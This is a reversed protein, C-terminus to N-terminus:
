LYSKLFWFTNYWVHLPAKVRFACIVIKKPKNTKYAQEAKLFNAYTTTVKIANKPAQTQDVSVIGDGSITIHYLYKCRGRKITLLVDNYNNKNVYDLVKESVETNDYAKLTKEIDNGPACVPAPKAGFFSFAFASAALMAIALIAAITLLPIKKM